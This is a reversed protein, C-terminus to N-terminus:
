IEYSIPEVVCSTGTAEVGIICVDDDFVSRGSYAKVEQVLRDCCQGLPLRSCNGLLFCLRQEGFLSGTSDIAEVLGDTYGVFRCGVPFPVTRATYAFGALLGTAPEPNAFDLRQAYDTEIHFLLPPPHGANAYTLTGGATDIVAFFATAFMPQGTHELIPCLAQNIEMLVHSPNLARLGMEEVVGRILATLLGARVGHGMVDCILVGCQSDSIQILDFFDGGLTTAPIYHHAFRLASSEAPVGRPFVPYPRSLFSEQLQRAMRVDAEMEATRQQLDREAQKRRTIDHSIGVLGIIQGALDRLPVKTTLSWRVQGDSGLASKEENLVPTGSAIVHSDDALAQEGREGPFFDLITRGLVDEQKQAGLLELHSKNNLLYHSATDKVFIRSPLHDIITRLLNRETELKQEAEKADTVDRTLGFTGIIRGTSDRWLLKTTSVWAKQGNRLTTHEIKSIVPKGTRIIEQEDALAQRAHEPAFFDFDTKGVCEEPSTVGLSHAHALNNRVFRSELDKFYIRDPITDMLVRLIASDLSESLDFKVAPSPDGM